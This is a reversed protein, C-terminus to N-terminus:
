GGAFSGQVAFHGSFNGAGEYGEPFRHVFVLHLDLDFSRVHHCYLCLLQLDQPRRGFRRPLCSGHFMRYLHFRRLPCRAQHM